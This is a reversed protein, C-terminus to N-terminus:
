PGVIAFHVNTFRRRAIRWGDPTRILDDDYYGRPNLGTQGDPAMLLADVYTRATATNGDVTIALNSLRHMTHGMDVHSTAMFTTIEEASHWPDLGEYEALVDDTFCTRFLDWDRRDIGTAYRLLVDAIDHEDARVDNGM